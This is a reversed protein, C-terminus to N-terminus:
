RLLFIAQGQIKSVENAKLFLLTKDPTLAAAQQIKTLNIHRQKQDDLAIFNPRSKVIENLQSM